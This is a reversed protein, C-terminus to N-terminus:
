FPPSAPFVYFQREADRDIMWQDFVVHDSLARVTLKHTGSSLSVPLTVVAQGRLVGDAWRKTGTGDTVVITTPTKGDVSVSCMTSGGNLAHTPVFALRLVGGVTQSRFTYTLSDGSYLEVANLSRGLLDLTKVGASASVYQSANRVINNDDTFVSETQTEKGYKEIEADSITDPLSPLGFVALAHPAFDMTGKWKDGAMSEYRTNLRLIEKYAKMSRAASELAEDDHHFSAPRGILRAEQAQLIKAAMLASSYVPYEVTAFYADRRDDSVLKAAKGVADCVYKYDEIYRELENGFEEANFDTNNIGGDGNINKESWSIQRSFDMFEPRRIGVLRYFQSIPQSLADAVQKSFQEALWGNLHLGVQADKVSNIDWAMDMVLSLPYAATKVNHAVAMWLRNAGNHFATKLENAVLGPQTTSLWLYDHPLGAYSLHYVVGTGNNGGHGTPEIYGFNDDRWGFEVTQSKKNDQVRLGNGGHPSAVAVDYEEAFSKLGHTGDHHSDGSDWGVSVFNARLRLLLEMLRQKDVGAFRELSVGRYEVSPIQTTEFKDDIMLRDRRVPTVDGWWTWPSVGALRSLYLLGYATGRGNSGVVVVKGKRVGLWFADKKTIFDTAPVLMSALSKLEKNSAMDLQYVQVSGSSSVAQAKSGTVAEMDNSFMELAKGVVPSVKKQISMTVSGGHTWEIEKASLPSPLVAITALVINIIRM